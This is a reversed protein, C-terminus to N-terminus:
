PLGTPRPTESNRSRRELVALVSDRNTQIEDMLAKTQELVHSRLERQAM